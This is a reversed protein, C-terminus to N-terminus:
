EAHSGPQHFPALRSREPVTSATVPLANEQLAQTAHELLVTSDPVPPSSRVGGAETGSRTPVAPALPYAAYLGKATVPDRIILGHLAAATRDISAHYAARKSDYIKCSKSLDPISGRM